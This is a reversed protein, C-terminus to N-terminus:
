LLCDFVAKQGAEHILFSVYFWGAWFVLNEEANAKKERERPCIRREAGFEFFIKALAPGARAIENAKPLAPTCCNEVVLMGHPTDGEDWSLGHFSELSPDM